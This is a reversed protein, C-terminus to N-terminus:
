KENPCGEIVVTSTLNLSNDRSFYEYTLPMGDIFEDIADTTNQMDIDYTSDLNWDICQPVGSWRITKIELRDAFMALQAKFSGKNVTFYRYGNERNIYDIASQRKVVTGELLEIQQRLVAFQAKLNDLQNSVDTVFEQGLKDKSYEIGLEKETAQTVGSLLLSAAIIVKYNM